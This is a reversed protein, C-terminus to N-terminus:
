CKWFIAAHLAKERGGVRTDCVRSPNQPAPNDTAGSVSPAHGPRTIALHLAQEIRRRPFSLVGGRRKGHPHPRVAQVVDDPLPVQGAGASREPFENIM